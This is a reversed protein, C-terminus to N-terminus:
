NERVTECVRCRLRLSRQLRFGLPDLIVVRGGLEAAIVQATQTNLQPEALVTSAKAARATDVVGATWKASPEKGPFAEVVAVQELGYRRALYTWAAHVSVFM